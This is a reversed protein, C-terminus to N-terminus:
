QGPIHRAAVSQVCEDGLSERGNSKVDVLRFNVRQVLALGIDSM